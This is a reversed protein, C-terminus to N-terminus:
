VMCNRGTLHLQHKPACSVHHGSRTCKDDPEETFATYMSKLM